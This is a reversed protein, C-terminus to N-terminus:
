SYLYLFSLLDRTDREQGKELYMKHARSFFPYMELHKDLSDSSELITDLGKVLSDILIHSDYLERESYYWEKVLQDTRLVSMTYGILGPLNGTKKVYEEPNIDGEMVGNISPASKNLLENIQRQLDDIEPDNVSNPVNM